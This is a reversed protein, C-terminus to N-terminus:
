FGVQSHDEGHCIEPMYESMNNPMKKKLGSVSSAHSKTNFQVHCKNTMKKPMWKAWPPMKQMIEPKRPSACKSLKHAIKESMKESMGTPMEHSMKDSMKRLMIFKSIYDIYDPMREAIKNRRRGPIFESKRDSMSESMRNTKKGAWKKQCWSQCEIQSSIQCRIQCADQCRIKCLARTQCVGSDAFNSYFTASLWRLPPASSSPSPSFSFSASFPSSCISM